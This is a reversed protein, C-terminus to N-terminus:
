NEVLLDNAYSLQLLTDLIPSDVCHFRFDAVWAYGRSMGVCEMRDLYAAQFEFADNDDADLSKMTPM